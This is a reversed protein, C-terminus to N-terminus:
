GAQARWWEVAARIADGLDSSSSWGVEDRLRGVDAVLREPEDPRSPLAGVRLLDPRGTAAAVREVVERVTVGRGSGINVAGSVDCDLLAAIAGAVDAVPLFDRVQDGATTNAPEGRLLARAVAPVLRDPHEGPGFAFFIRAWALATGTGEVAAAAAEHLRHKAQGYPTAPRLPTTDESCSGDGLASWDYEACSGVLVARQGGAAVFARVLELSAAEWRENLRSTWFEGPEAYWALHLLHTPRVESIVAAAAGSALLDAQASGVGVVELGRERLPALAQRGVFGTAGTVLVRRV